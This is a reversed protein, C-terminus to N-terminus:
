LSCAESTGDVVELLVSYQQLRSAKASTSFNWHVKKLGLKSILSRPSRVIEELFYNQRVGQRLIQEYKQNKHILISRSGSGILFHAWLVKM